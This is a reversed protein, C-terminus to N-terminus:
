VFIILTANVEPTSPVKKQNNEIIFIWKKVM